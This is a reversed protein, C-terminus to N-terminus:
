DIAPTVGFVWLTRKSGLWYLVIEGCLWEVRGSRVVGHLSLVFVLCGVCVGVGFERVKPGRGSIRCAWLEGDKVSVRCQPFGTTGVRRWRCPLLAGLVKGESGEM